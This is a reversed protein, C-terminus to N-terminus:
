PYDLLGNIYFTFTFKSFDPIVCHSFIYASTGAAQLCCQKKFLALPPIGKVSHWKKLQKVTMPINSLM